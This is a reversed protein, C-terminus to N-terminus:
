GLNELDSLLEDESRDSRYETVEPQLQATYINVPPLGSRRLCYDAMVEGITIDLSQALLAAAALIDGLIYSVARVDPQYQESAWRTIQHEFLLGNACRAITKANRFVEAGQSDAGEGSADEVVLRQFEDGGIDRSQLLWAHQLRTARENVIAQFAEGTTSSSHDAWVEQLRTVLAQGQESLQLDGEAFWADLIRLLRITRSVELSMDIFAGTRVVGGETPQDTTPHDTTLM